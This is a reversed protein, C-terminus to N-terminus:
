LKILRQRYTTLQTVNFSQGNGTPNVTTSSSVSLPFVINGSATQGIGVRGPVQGGGFTDITVTGSSSTSATHTHSPLSALPIPRQREGEYYGSEYAPYLITNVGTGNTTFALPVNAMANDFTTALKMTTSTLFIVYYVTTGDLGAPFSGTTALKIPSGTVVTAISGSTITLIGTTFNATYTFTEQDTFTDASVRGLNKPLYIPKSALFDAVASVGAGGVVPAYTRSITNWILNYLPFTDYNARNTSASGSAGITGDDLRIWGYPYFNNYSEKVDGTRPSDIIANTRDFSEFTQIPAIDGLFLSPKAIDISCTADLPFQIQLFLGDNHCNGITKGGISPIVVTESFLQWDGTLNFTDIATNVPSDLSGDGFFQKIQCTLTSAGSNVRAWITFTCTQDQLNLANSSIPIQIYKYVETAGAGTCNYRFYQVPTVDSNFPTDGPLFEIFSLQDTASNNNKIFVIDPGYLSDTLALGTNTGPALPIYLDGAQNSTNRWFVSNIVLNELDLATTVVSGGSGNAPSFNNITWQLVGNTDYIELYYLDDPNDSDFQFYLPGQTGNEDIQIGLTTGQNPILNYSWPFTGGADKYILKQQSPNLSKFSAIYGGGLPRGTLDAFYWKPNSALSYTIAM